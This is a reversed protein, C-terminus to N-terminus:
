HRVVLLGAPVDESWHYDLRFGRSGLRLLEEQDETTQEARGIRAVIAAIRQEPSVSGRAADLVRPRAVHDPWGRSLAEVAAARATPDEAHRAALAVRDGVAPDGAALDVLSRAASRQVGVDEDLMAKQLCDLVHPERPWRAMAQFVAPRWALRSPFWQPVKTEVMGRVRASRLGDLARRLLREQQPMWSGTEIRAFTTAALDRTLANPCNFSGFVTECLLLEAAMRDIPHSCSARIADVFAQMDAPRRTLHFLCLLVERWQPDSSRSQVVGLQEEIPLEALHWAALYEQATRHFYGVESQSRSVLIGTTEVGVELLRGALGQADREGFGFGREPDRLYAWVIARAEDQDVLGEPSRTQIHYALHALVQRTEEDSIAPLTTNVIEAAKRRRAPHKATLLDVLQEYAKFRSTPLYGDHMRQLILLILLLPVKALEQFDPSGALEALFEESAAEARRDVEAAYSDAGELRTLRCAYWIRALRRQQTPTFDALEGVEWGAHELGLRRHGHPRSALIAPIRRQEVFVRLRDLAIGAAEENTWEDLEDVLLLLRRGKLAREVLPWLRGEDWGVLWQRLMDTLSVTPGTEAIMKTWRPFPVWVPLYTGWKGMVAALRPEESLLDIALFRLLTSKGSGPGGLVVTRDNAALWEEVARRGNFVATVGPQRAAPPADGESGSSTRGRGTGGSGDDRSGTESGGGIEISRRDLVDPVIYRDELRVVAGPTDAILLGPDQVNFVHAYFRGMERRFEAVQAADLRDGLRDAQEDGCFERVWERGFFDDVIEPHQKLQRSLRPSDGPLLTIGRGRLEAALREFEEARETSELSEQTCLVLTDAREVWNGDLFKEVAKRIKAPGFSKERKCQYVRYKAGLSPRAYLDIGGQDQGRIGYLQCHEVRAERSALRLCLREFDGWALSGFPLEQARTTVPPAVRSTPPTAAM